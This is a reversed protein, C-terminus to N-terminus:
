MAFLLRVQNRISSVFNLLLFMHSANHSKQVMYNKVSQLHKCSGYFSLAVLCEGLYNHLSYADLFSPHTLIKRIIHCLSIEGELNLKLIM